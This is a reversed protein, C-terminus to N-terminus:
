PVPGAQMRRQVGLASGGGSAAMSAELSVWPWIRCIVWNMRFSALSLASSIEAFARWSNLTSFSLTTLWVLSLTRWSYALFTLCTSVWCAIALDVAMLLDLSSFILARWSMIPLIASSVFAEKISCIFLSPVLLSKM